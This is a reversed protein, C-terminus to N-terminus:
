TAEGRRDILRRGKGEFRPLSGAPVDRVTIKLGLRVNLEDSIRAPQGLRDEVEIEIQDLEGRRSVILRYEIVEPFAHLIEAIAMPFINVGRVVLMDDTRGLVGGELLTWGTAQGHNRIPRVLDGTRYRIVPSGPRSLTTLVLEAVEGDEASQGTELSLFEPLFDHENVWLGRGANDAFGWPGVESAGAHDFVRANWAKAIRDRTAPVSGGPEGAVFICRVGCSPLDLNHEDAVEALHLAYSPTCFVVAARSSRILELRGLTSMGGTPIVMAGRAACAEFASWFGVFPGFSFAMLVRDGAEVPVADLIFQWADIWGQWDDATDLVVLPRGRTGSTRHFRAYRETPWTQNAALDGNIAEGLLDGKFTFPWEALEALSQVPRRVRGLKDAYLRNHPLITDLLQNLRAVQHAALAEGALEM